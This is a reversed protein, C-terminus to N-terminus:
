NKKSIKKLLKLVKSTKKYNTSPTSKIIQTSSDEKIQLELYKLYSSMNSNRKVLIGQLLTELKEKHYPDEIGNQTFLYYNIEDFIQDNISDLDLNSIYNMDYEHNHSELSCVNAAKQLLLARIDDNNIQSIIAVDKKHHNNNLSNETLILQYLDMFIHENTVTQLLELDFNKYQSNMFTSNMLLSVYHMVFKDNFTNIKELNALYKPDNKRNPYGTTYEFRASSVDYYDNGTFKRSPNAIYYYLAKATTNSKAETLIKVEDRYYKGKIINQNTMIMYLYKGSLPNKALIQMNESHYKDKLSIRNVALNNISHEPYSNPMQLASIDAKSILNMDSTHHTSKISDGDRAVEALCSARLEDKTNAILKLDQDHYPSKIFVDDSIVWLGYRATSANKLIEIDKYFNKSNLFNPKCIYNFLHWCGDGNKLSTIANVKEKYDKCNLLNQNILLPKLNKLDVSDIDLSLFNNIQAINLNAIWDNFDDKNNFQEALEYKNIQDIILKLTKNEM